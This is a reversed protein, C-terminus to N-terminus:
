GRRGAPGLRELRRLSGALEAPTLIQLDPAPAEAVSCLAASYEPHIEILRLRRMPLDADLRQLRVAGDSGDPICSFSELPCALGRGFAKIYSEKLSWIDFFRKRAADAGPAQSLWTQEAPSFFREALGAHVSHHAEIDVGIEEAAFGCIVWDGSHSL